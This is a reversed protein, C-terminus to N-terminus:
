EMAYNLIREGQIYNNKNNLIFEKSRKGIEDREERSMQSLRLITDAIGKPTVSDFTQIHEYYEAGVGELRFAATPNGSVLYEFLKSPFCYKTAKNEPPIMCLLLDAERQYRKLLNRDSVHGIYNIRSDKLAVQEIEPVMTGSGILRLEFGEGEVLSFADILKDIGYGHNLAGSYLLRFKKDDKECEIEKNCDELNVCGEMVIYQDETLFLREKMHESFLVFKDCKKLQKNIEKYDINKLMKKLKSPNFDYYEPLDPVICTIKIDKIYKRLIDICKMYPTHLGYIIVRCPEAAYKKAWKRVACNIKQTKYILELYPLSILDVFCHYSGDAELWEEGDFRIKGDRKYPLRCGGITDIPHKASIGGIINKQAVTISMPQYGYEILRNMLGINTHEGIWLIRM